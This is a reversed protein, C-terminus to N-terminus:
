PTYPPTISCTPDLPVAVVDTVAEPDVGVVTVLLAVPIPNLAPGPVLAVPLTVPVDVPLEVAPPFGVDVLEVAAATCNCLPPVTM